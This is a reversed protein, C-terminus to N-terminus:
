CAWIGVLKYAGKLLPVHSKIKLDQCKTGHNAGMLNETFIRSISSDISPYVFSLYIGLGLGLCIFGFRQGAKLSAEQHLYQVDAYPLSQRPRNDCCSSLVHVNSACAKSHSWRSNLDPKEWKNAM